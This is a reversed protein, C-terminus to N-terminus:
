NGATNKLKNRQMAAISLALMIIVNVSALTIASAMGIQDAVSGVFQPTIIGGLASIATLLSIGLTSGHVYPGAMAMCGPYIGALFFGLGILAATILALSSSTILVFFCVSSGAANILLLASQHLRKNLAACTLRGIMIFLWTVSVMVAAYAETMIGTSQLYTVFWGNICNEIGLYFFLLFGICYFDFSKLFIRQESGASRQTECAAKSIRDAIMHFDILAYSLVSSASIFILIYIMSRWGFGLLILMAAMFPATFAGVAYSCHLLNMMRGSNNTIINCINNNIITISGKAIGLLLMLVYMINMSPLFTMSLFAGPVCATMLCIALRHGLRASILPYVFSALLNGIALMSLLGGATAFNIDAELIISPLIAGIVLISMGSVAYSYCCRVFILTEKRNM